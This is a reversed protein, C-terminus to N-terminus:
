QMGASTKPSLRPSGKSATFPSFGNRRRTLRAALPKVKEKKEHSGSAMLRRKRCSGSTQSAFGFERHPIPMRRRNNRSMSSHTFTDMIGLEAYNIM